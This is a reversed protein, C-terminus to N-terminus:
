PVATRTDPRSSLIIPALPPSPIPLLLVPTQQTDPHSRNSTSTCTCSSVQSYTHSQLSVCGVVMEGRDKEEKEEEKEEEEKEGKRSM